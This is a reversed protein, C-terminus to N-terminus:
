PPQKVHSERLYRSFRAELRTRIPNRNTRANVCNWSPAPNALVSGLHSLTPGIYPGPPGLMAGLHRRSPGVYAWSLGFFCCLGLVSRLLGLDCFITGVYAWSPGAHAGLHALMQDHCGLLKLTTGVGLVARYWVVYLSLHTLMLGSPGLYLRTELHPLNELHPLDNWKSPNNSM